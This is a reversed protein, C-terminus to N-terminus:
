LPSPKLCHTNERWLLEPHQQAPLTHTSHTEKLARHWPLYCLPGKEKGPGAGSWDRGGFGESPM